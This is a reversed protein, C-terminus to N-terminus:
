PHCRKQRQVFLQVHDQLSKTALFHEKRIHFSWTAVQFKEWVLCESVQTWLHPNFRSRPYWAHWIVPLSSELESCVDSLWLVLESNEVVILWAQIIRSSISPKTVEIITKSTSRVALCPGEFIENDLFTKRAHVFIWKRTKRASSISPRIPSRHRPRDSM